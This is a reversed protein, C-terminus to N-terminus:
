KTALTEFKVKQSVVEYDNLIQVTGWIGSKKADLYQKIYGSVIKLERITLLKAKMPTKTEFAIIIQNAYHKLHVM